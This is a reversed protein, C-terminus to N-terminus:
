VKEKKFGERVLNRNHKTITPKDHTEQATLYKSLRWHLATVPHLSSQCVNVRVQYKKKTFRYAGGKGQRWHNSLYHLPRQLWNPHLSATCCIFTTMVSGALQPHLTCSHHRKWKNVQVKYHWSFHCFISWGWYLIM